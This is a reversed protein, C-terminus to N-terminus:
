AFSLGTRSLRSIRLGPNVKSHGRRRAPSGSDHTADVPTYSTFGGAPPGIWLLGALDAAGDKVGAIRLPKVWRSRWTSRAAAAALV